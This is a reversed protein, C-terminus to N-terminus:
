QKSNPRSALLEEGYFCMINRVVWFVGRVQVSGKTHIPVTPPSKHSRYHVKEKRLFRLIEQSVLFMGAEWSPSKKM